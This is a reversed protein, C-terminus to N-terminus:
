SISSATYSLPENNTVFAVACHFEFDLRGTHDISQRLECSSVDREEGPWRKTGPHRSCGVKFARCATGRNVRRGAWEERGIDGVRMHRQASYPDTGMISRVTDVM